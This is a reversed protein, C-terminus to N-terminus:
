MGGQLNALQEGTGAIPEQGPFEVAPAAGVDEVQQEVPPQEMAASTEQPPNIYDYCAETFDRIAQLKDMDLTENLLMSELKENWFKKGFEVAYEVDLFESPEVPSKGTDFIIDFLLEIVNLQSTELDSDALVDLDAM